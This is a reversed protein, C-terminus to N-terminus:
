SEFRYGHLYPRKNYVTYLWKKINYVTETSKFVRVIRSIRKVPTPSATCETADQAQAIFNTNTFHVRNSM